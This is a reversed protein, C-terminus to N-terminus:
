ARDAAGWQPTSHTPGEPSSDQRAKTIPPSRGSLFTSWGSRRNPQIPVTMELRSTAGDPASPTRRSGFTTLANHPETWDARDRLGAADDGDLSAPTFAVVPRTRRTVMALRVRMRLFSGLPHRHFQQAHEAVEQGDGDGDSHDYRYQV